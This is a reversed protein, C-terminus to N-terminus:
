QKPAEILMWHTVENQTDWGEKDQIWGKSTHKGHKWYQDVEFEGSGDWTLVYGSGFSDGHQSWCEPMEDNVNIWKM